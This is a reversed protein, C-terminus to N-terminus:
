NIMGIVHIAIKPRISSDTHAFITDVYRGRETRTNEV